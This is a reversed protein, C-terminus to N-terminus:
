YECSSQAFVLQYITCIQGFDNAHKRFVIFITVNVTKTSHLKSLNSIQPSHLTQSNCCKFAWSLMSFNFSFPNVVISTFQCLNLNNCVKTLRNCQTNLISLLKHKECLTWPEISHSCRLFLTVRSQSFVSSFSICLYTREHSSLKSFQISSLFLLDLVLSWLDFDM